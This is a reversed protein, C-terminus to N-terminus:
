AQARATSGSRRRAILDLHQRHLSVDVHQNAVPSVDGRRDPASPIRSTSVPTACILVLTIDFTSCIAVAIVDDGLGVPAHAQMARPVGPPHDLGDSFAIMLEGAGGLGTRKMM